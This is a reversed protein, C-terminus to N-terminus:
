TKLIRANSIRHNSPNISQQVRLLRSKIQCTTDSDNLSHDRFYCSKNAHRDSVPWFRDTAIRGWLPGDHSTDLVEQTSAM